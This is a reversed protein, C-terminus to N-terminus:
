GRLYRFVSHYSSVLKHVERGSTIFLQAVTTRIALWNFMLYKLRLKYSNWRIEALFQQCWNWTESTLSTLRVKWKFNSQTNFLFLTGNHLSPSLAQYHLCKEKLFKWINWNGVPLPASLADNHDTRDRQVCTMWKEAVVAVDAQRCNLLGALVIQWFLNYVVPLSYPSQEQMRSVPNPQFM